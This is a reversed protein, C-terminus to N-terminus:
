RQGPGGDHEDYAFPFAFPKREPERECATGLRSGVPRAMDEDFDFVFALGVVFCRTPLLLLFLLLM